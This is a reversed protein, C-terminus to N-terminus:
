LKINVKVKQGNDLEIMESEVMDQEFNKTSYQNEAPGSLVGIEMLTEPDVKSESVDNIHESRKESSENAKGYWSFSQQKAESILSSLFTELRKRLIEEIDALSVHIDGDLKTHDVIREKGKPGIAIKWTTQNGNLKKIVIEEVIMGPVIRQNKNSLIYVLQGIEFTRAQSTMDSAAQL